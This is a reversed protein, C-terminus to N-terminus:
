TSLSYNETSSTENAAMKSPVESSTPGPDGNRVDTLRDVRWVTRPEDRTIHPPSDVEFRVLGIRKDKIQGRNMTRWPMWVMLVELGINGPCSIHGVEARSM